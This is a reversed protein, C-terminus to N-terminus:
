IGLEMKEILLTVSGRSDIWNGVDDGAYWNDEASEVIKSLM